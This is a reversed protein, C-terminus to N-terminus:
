GTDGIHFTFWYYRRWCWICRFPRLAFLSLLGDSSHLEAPKFEISTCRPCQHRIWLLHPLWTPWNWGATSMRIIREASDCATLGKRAGSHLDLLALLSRISGMAMAM